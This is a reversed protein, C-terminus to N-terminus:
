LHLLLNRGELQDFMEIVTKSLINGTDLASIQSEFLTQPDPLPDVYQKWHITLCTQEVGFWMGDSVCSM